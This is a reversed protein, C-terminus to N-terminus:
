LIIKTLTCEIDKNGKHCPYLIWLREKKKTHCIDGLQILNQM